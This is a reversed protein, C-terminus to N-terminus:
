PQATCEGTIALSADPTSVGASLKGTKKSVLASFSRPTPANKGIGHFLIFEDTVTVNEIDNTSPEQGLSASKLTKNEVDLLMVAPLNATKLSIRSCGTLEVCEYVESIACLYPKEAALSPASAMVSFCLGLCIKAISRRM